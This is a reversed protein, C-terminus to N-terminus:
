RSLLKREAEEMNQFRFAASVEDRRQLIKENCLNGISGEHTHNVNTSPKFTGSEISQGVQKYADRFPTGELTLQNVVEVSFMLNYKEDSLIDTNVEIQAM